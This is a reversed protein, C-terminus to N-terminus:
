GRTCFHSPLASHPLPAGGVKECTHEPLKPPLLLAVGQGLAERRRQACFLRLEALEDEGLALCYREQAFLGGRHAPSGLLCAQLKVPPLLSLRQTLPLNYFRRSTCFIVACLPM